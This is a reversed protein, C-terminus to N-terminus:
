FLLFGDECPILVKALLCSGPQYIAFLQVGFYSLWTTLFFVPFSLFFTKIENLSFTDKCLVMKNKLRQLM